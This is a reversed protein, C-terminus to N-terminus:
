FYLLGLIIRSPDIRLNKIFYDQVVDMTRDIKAKNSTGEYLGYGPYEILFADVSLHASLGRLATVMDGIDCGNSHTHVLVFMSYPKKNLM